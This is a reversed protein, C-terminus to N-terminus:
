NSCRCPSRYISLLTDVAILLDSLVIQDDAEEDIAILKPPENLPLDV